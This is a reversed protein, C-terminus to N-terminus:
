FLANDNDVKRVIWNTLIVLIFGVTSQYFTTASSMGVDGLSILARYVFTDIVDTTPYLLSSDMTVNYFLGFDGNFIKGIALITQIVIMPKIMPISIYWLQKMKGAGDLTAAEYYTNDVGMLSAYYILAGYGVGKWINIVVILVPWKSPDNYWMVPEKGFFKLISNFVGYNMDLFASFVYGVVVWSIFYPLFLITQYVKVCRSSLEYLTLAVALAAVTGFVIFALNYLVTNRTAVAIGSGSFLFKFNELGVWESKFFGLNYKYNKFPLVLGYLPIYSFLFILVIAPLALLTLECNKRFYKLERLVASTKKKNNM